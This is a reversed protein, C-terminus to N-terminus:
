LFILLYLNLLLCASFCVQRELQTIRHFMEDSEEVTYADIFNDIYEPELPVEVKLKTPTSGDMMANSIGHGEDAKKISQSKVSSDSSVTEEKNEDNNDVANGEEDELDGWSVHSKRAKGSNKSPSSLSSHSAQSGQSPQSSLSHQSHQSAQSHHSNVSGELSMEEDSEELTELHSLVPTPPKLSLDPLGIIGEDNESGQVHFTNWQRKERRDIFHLMSKLQSKVDVDHFSSTDIPGIGSAMNVLTRLRTNEAELEKFRHEMEQLKEHMEEVYSDSRLSASILENINEQMVMSNELRYLREVIANITEGPVALSSNSIAAIQPLPTTKASSFKSVADNLTKTLQTRMSSMDMKTGTRQILLEKQMNAMADAIQANVFQEVMAANRTVSEIQTRSDVVDSELSQLLENNKLVLKRLEELEASTETFSTQLKSVNKDMSGLCQSIASSLFSLQQIGNELNEIDESM